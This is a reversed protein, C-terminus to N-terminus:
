FVGMVSVQLVKRAGADDGEQVKDLALQELLRLMEELKVATRACEEAKRVADDRETELLRLQDTLNTVSADSAEPRAAAPVDCASSLLSTSFPITHSCCLEASGRNQYVSVCMRSLPDM